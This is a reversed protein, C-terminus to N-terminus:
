RIIGKKKDIKSRGKLILALGIIVFIASATDILANHHIFLRIIISLGTFFFGLILHAM